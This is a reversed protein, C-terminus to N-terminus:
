MNKNIKKSGQVELLKGYSEGHSSVRIKKFFRGVVEGVRGALAENFFSQRSLTKCPNLTMLCATLFFGNLLLWWSPATFLMKAVSIPQPHSIKQPSSNRIGSKYSAQNFWGISTWVNWTPPVTQVCRPSIPDNTFRWTPPTLCSFCCCQFKFGGGVVHAWFGTVTYTPNFSWKYHHFFVWLNNSM